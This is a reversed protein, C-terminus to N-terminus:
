DKRTPAGGDRENSLSTLRAKPLFSYRRVMPAQRVVQRVAEGTDALLALQGLAGSARRWEQSGTSVANRELEKRLDSVTGRCSAAAALIGDALTPSGSVLALGFIVAMADLPAPATTPGGVVAPPSASRLVRYVNVFRILTRPSSGAFPAFLELMQKEDTSLVLSQGDVMARLNASSEEGEDGGNTPSAASEAVAQEPRAGSPIAAPDAATASEAGSLQETTEHGVGEGGPQAAGQESAERTLGGEPDRDGVPLLSSPEQVRQDALERVLAKSADGTLRRVWYPITFIKELYDRPSARHLRPEPLEGDGSWENTAILLGPHQKLLAHSVWRVDVAVVVVFLPFSLLLHCAQLVEVVREAPCRDLDDIYLVVREFFRLDKDDTELISELEEKEGTTLEKQAVLEEVQSRLVERESEYDVRAASENELDAMISALQDFDRRIHAIIGLHRAYDGNVIKARIFRHMRRHATEEFGARALQVAEHARDVGEEARVVHERRLTLDRESDLLAIAKKSAARKNQQTPTWDGGAQPSETALRESEKEVARDLRQKIEALKDIAGNATRLGAGVWAVAGALAGALQGSEVGFSNLLLPGLGILGVLGVLWPVQSLRQLTGQAVLEGRQAEDRCKGILALLQAASRPVDDAEPLELGLAAAGKRLTVLMRDHGSGSGPLVQQIAAFLSALTVSGREQAMTEIQGRCLEVEEEAQRLQRRAEVLHRTAEVKLTLSTSLQTFLAESRNTGKDDKGHVRLWGDLEQFIHDVLSAWLNTEMYHWANFRIQVVNAHYTGQTSERPDRDERSCEKEAAARRKAESAACAKVGAHMKEMFFSKGTGWEGFVGISLPPKTQRSAAVRAFARAEEQAGLHDTADASITDAWIPAIDNERGAAIGELSATPTHALRSADVTDDGVLSTPTIESSETPEPDDERAVEEPAGAAAPTATEAWLSALPHNDEVLQYIVSERLQRWPTGTSTELRRVTLERRENLFAGVLHDAELREHGLGMAVMQADRLLTAAGPSLADSKSRQGKFSLQQSELSATLDTVGARRAAATFVESLVSVATGGEHNRTEQGVELLARLLSTSSVDHIRLRSARGLVDIVTSSLPFGGLRERWAIPARKNDPLLEDWREHAPATSRVLELFEDLHRLTPLRWHRIDESHGLPPDLILAAILHPAVLQSSGVRKAVRVAGQVWHRASPSWPSVGEPLSDSGSSQTKSSPMSPRPRSGQEITRVTSDSVEALWMEVPDDGSLLAVLVSQFFLAHEGGSDLGAQAGRWLMTALEPELQLGDLEKSISVAIWRPSEQNRQM